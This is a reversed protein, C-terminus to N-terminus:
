KDFKQETFHLSDSSIDINRDLVPTKILDNKLGGSDSMANQFFFGSQLATKGLTEHTTFGGGAQTPRSAAGLVQVVKTQPNAVPRKRQALTGRQIVLFPSQPVQPVLSCGNAPNKQFKSSHSKGTTTENVFFEVHIKLVREGLIM